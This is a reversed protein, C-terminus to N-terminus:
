RSVVKVNAVLATAVDRSVRPADERRNSLIVDRIAGKRNTSESYYGLSPAASWGMAEYRYSVYARTAPGVDRSQVGREVRGIFVGDLFVRLTKAVDQRAPGSRNTYTVVRREAKDEIVDLRHINTM